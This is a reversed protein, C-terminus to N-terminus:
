ALAMMMLGAANVTIRFFYNKIEDELLLPLYEEGKHIIELKRRAHLVILDFEQQTLVMGKEEMTKRVTEIDPM